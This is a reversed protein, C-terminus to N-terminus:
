KRLLTKIAKIKESGIQGKIQKKLSSMIGHTSIERKAYSDFGRVLAIADSEDQAEVFVEFVVSNESCLFSDMNEEFEDKSSASLYRFGNDEAFHRLLVQSRHGNHGAAAVYGDVDEGLVSAPHDYNRFQQGGNNNVILIHLNSGVHRNGLVNMDYFFALDGFVGYFQKLPSVISAGIMASLCGDIGFGGVNAHTKLKDSMQAYDWTRLSNVIGLYLESNDPIRCAMKQAIWCNSFPLEPINQRIMSDEKKFSELLDNKPFSSTDAYHIFFTEEDMAFVTSLKGYRDRICGDESVRWVEKTSINFGVYDSSVEGIHILLDINSLVGSYNHQSMVLGCRVAYRGTYNFPSVCLVVANYTSCFTDICDILRQDFHKHSGIMIAIKDAVIEPMDAINDIRKICRSIPLELVSLAGFSSAIDIHAPGGGKKTLTHLAKNVEIECLFEDRDDKVIPLYVSDYVIDKPHSTRDIQQANLHGNKERSPMSTVALIPLKRYFAETLGSMYNRSATAGTCSLVIPEECEEAMGVALYAASREDVCSYVQFFSDSQVSAVFTFNTAGPSAIVKRIGYQKLLSVLIQINRETSYM